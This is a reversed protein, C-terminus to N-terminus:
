KKWSREQLISRIKETGRQTQETNSKESRERRGHSDVTSHPRRYKKGYLATNVFSM